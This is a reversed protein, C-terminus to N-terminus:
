SLIKRSKLLLLITKVPRSTTICNYVTAVGSLGESREKRWISFVITYLTLHVTLTLTWRKMKKWSGTTSTRRWLSATDVRNTQSRRLRRIQWKVSLLSLTTTNSKMSTNLFNWKLIYIILLTKWFRNYMYLTIVILDSHWTLVDFRANTNAAGGTHQDPTSTLAVGTVSTGEAHLSSRPAGTSPRRASWVPSKKKTSSDTYGASANTPPLRQLPRSRM